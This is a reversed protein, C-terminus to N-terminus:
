GLAVGLQVEHQVIRSPGPQLRELRPRLALLNAAHVERGRELHCGADLALQFQGLRHLHSGASRGSLGLVCRGARQRDGLALPGQSASALRDHHRNRGLWEDPKASRRRRCLLLLVREGERRVIQQRARYKLAVLRDVPHRDLNGGRRLGARLGRHRRSRVTLIDTTATGGTNVGAMTQRRGLLRTYIISGNLADFSSSNLGAYRTDTSGFLFSVTDEERGAPVLVLINANQSDISDAIIAINTQNANSAYNYGGSAGGRVVIKRPEKKEVITTITRSKRKRVHTVVQTPVRRMNLYARRANPSRLGLPVVIGMDKAKAEREELTLDKKETVTVTVEETKKVPVKQTKTPLVTQQPPPIFSDVRSVINPDFSQANAARGGFFAALAILVPLSRRLLAQRM